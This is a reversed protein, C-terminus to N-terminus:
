KSWCPKSALWSSARGWGNKLYIKRACEINQDPDFPNDGCKYGKWTGRIIQFLGSASSNTHKANPNLSSECFAVHVAMDPNEPFALRIKEEITPKKIPPLVITQPAEQAHVEGILPNLLETDKPESYLWNLTAGIAIMALMVKLPVFNSNKFPIYQFQGLKNRKM